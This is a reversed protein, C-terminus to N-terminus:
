PEFHLLTLRYIVELMVKSGPCQLQQISQQAWQSERSYIFSELHNMCRFLVPRNAARQWWRAKFVLFITENSSVSGTFDLFGLEKNEKKNRSKKKGQRQFRTNSYFAKGRSQHLHLWRLNDCDHSRKIAAVPRCHRWQFDHLPKEIITTDRFCLLLLLLTHVKLNTNSASHSKHLTENKWLNSPTIGSPTSIEFLLKAKVRANSRLSEPTYRQSTIFSMPRRLWSTFRQTCPVKSKKEWNRLTSTSAKIAM